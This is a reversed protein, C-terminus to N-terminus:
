PGQNVKIKQKTRIANNFPRAKRLGKTNDKLSRAKIGCVETFQQFKTKGNHCEPAWGLSPNAELRKFQAFPLYYSKSNQMLREAPCAALGPRAHWELSHPQFCPLLM